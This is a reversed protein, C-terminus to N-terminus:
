NWNVWPAKGSELLKDLYDRDRLTDMPHWFGEHKYSTLQGQASLNALPETEWPCTPGNIFDLANKSIVFFGGNVWSEVHDSKEQFSRVNNDRDILLSGFRGPQRVATLTVLKKTRRHHELLASLNVDSVGDGYTMLFTDDEIYRSVAKLRGGTMTNIGTDVLTVEWPDSTATHYISTNELLNITLDNSHLMYNHFYEKILYGKYGLCILFRNFGFTSYIKMIHWLIPRGGIEVMPKPKLYTEESLRSGLGGALIVVQM